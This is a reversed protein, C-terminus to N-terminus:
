MRVNGNPASEPTTSPPLDPDNLSARLDREITLSLSTMPTDMFLNEFPDEIIRGSGELLVFLVAVVTAVPVAVWGMTPVLGFPLLLGYVVVFIRPIEDYQRPVPTNKIRECRGQIDSLRTLMGDMELHRFHEIFGQARLQAVRRGQHILLATIVNPVSKYHDSEGEPLFPGIRDLLGDQKRLHMGLGWVFASQRLVLERRIAQVQEPTTGPPSDDVNVWATVQRAWSRSDNVLAGWIKRAEWWRDYASNNRFALFIALASGLASIAGFPVGQEQYLMWDHTFTELWAPLGWLGPEHAIVHVIVAVVGALTYLLIQPSINRLISWWNLNGIVV